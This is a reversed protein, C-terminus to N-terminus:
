GAVRGGSRIGALAVAVRGALAANNRVLAINAALSRGHSLASVRALLFPTVEKGSIGARRADELAAAIAGDIESAELADAEPIPNAILLGSGSGLRLHLDIAAALDDATDLRHAAECGSQRAYFAPFAKTGHGIVPVRLTELMELTKPIDLISKAGACIVAVPTAGLEALDASVDFSEAAGRHVGGIGGTAFVAIGALAAIRMTASVTTGASGGRVLIAALDRSSAKAIGEGKALTELGGRDLGVRIRGALVAITAPVAGAERLIAELSAALALNEPYPMDHAVITSELAVVPAGVALAAAVEPQVDLPLAANRAIM